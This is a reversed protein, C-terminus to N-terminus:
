NNAIDMATTGKDAVYLVPIYKRRVCKEETVSRILSVPLMHFHGQLFPKNAREIEGSYSVGDASM